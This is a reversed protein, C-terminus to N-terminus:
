KKVRLSSRAGVRGVFSDCHFVRARARESVEEVRKKEQELFQEKSLGKQKAM